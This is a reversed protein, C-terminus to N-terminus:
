SAVLSKDVINQMCTAREVSLPNEYPLPDKVANVFFAVQREVCAPCQGCQIDGGNYCSYSDEYCDIGYNEIIRAVTEEKKENILPTDIKIDLRNGDVVGGIVYDHPHSYSQVAAVIDNVIDENGKIPNTRGAQIAAELLNFFVPRCDRYAEYDEICAGHVITDCDNEQAFAAAFLCFIANRQPVVTSRQQSMDTTVDISHDILSCGGIQSIPVDLVVRKVGHKECFRTAAENEKKFHRQGYQFGLSIVNEAGHINIYDMMIALSDMGGSHMVLKKSM